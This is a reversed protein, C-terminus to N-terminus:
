ERSLHLSLRKLMVMLLPPSSRSFQSFTSLMMLSYLCRKYNRNIREAILTTFYKVLTVQFQMVANHIIRTRLIGNDYRKDLYNDESLSHPLIKM